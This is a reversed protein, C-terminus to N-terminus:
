QGSKLRGGQVRTPLMKTLLNKNIYLGYDHGDREQGKSDSSRRFINLFETRVASFACRTETVLM